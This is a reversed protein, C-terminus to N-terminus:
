ILPKEKKEINSYSFEKANHINLIHFLYKLVVSILMFLVGFGLSLLVFTSAWGAATDKVFYAIISYIIAVLALGGFILSTNISATIILDTHYVLTDVFLSFGQSFTRTKNRGLDCKIIAINLGTLVYSVNRNVQRKSVDDAKNLGRRSSLTILSPIFQANLKSLFFRNMMSYFLRSSVPNRNPSLFVFDNGQQCTKYMQSIHAQTYVMSADPIEVVYDCIAINVGATLAQQTEHRRSLSVVTIPLTIAKLVDGVTKGAYNSVVIIV